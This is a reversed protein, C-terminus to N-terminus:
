RREITPAETNIDPGFFKIVLLDDRGDNVVDVGRV